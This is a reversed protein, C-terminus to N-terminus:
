IEFNEFIKLILFDSFGFIHFIEFPIIEPGPHVGSVIFTQLSSKYSYNLSSHESILIQYKKSCKKRNQFNQNKQSKEFPKRANELKKMSKSCM